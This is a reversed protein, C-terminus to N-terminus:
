ALRPYMAPIADPALRIDKTLYVRGGAAAVLQDFETLLPELGPACRPFDLALTWGAIPFSLPFDNAPGFDKLVALFCPVGTRRLREIVDTYFSLRKYLDRRKTGDPIKM